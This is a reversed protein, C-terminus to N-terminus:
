SGRNYIKIILANGERDAPLRELVLVRVGCPSKLGKSGVVGYNNSEVCLIIRPCQAVVLPGVQGPLLERFGVETKQCLTGVAAKGFLGGSISSHMAAACRRSDVDAGTQVPDGFPGDGRYLGLAPAPRAPGEGSDACDFARVLYGSLSNFNPAASFICVSQTSFSLTHIKFVRLTECRFRQRHRSVPECIAPM